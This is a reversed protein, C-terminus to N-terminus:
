HSVMKASLNHYLTPNLKIDRLVVYHMQLGGNGREQMVSVLGSKLVFAQYMTTKYPLFLEIHKGPPPVLSSQQPSTFWEPKLSVWYLHDRGQIWEVQERIQKISFVHDELDSKNYYIRCESDFLEPFVFDEQRRRDATRMVRASM